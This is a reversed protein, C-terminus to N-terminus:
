VDDRLIRTPRRRDVETMQNIPNTFSKDSLMTLILPDSHDNGCLNLVLREDRM